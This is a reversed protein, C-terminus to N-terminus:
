ANSVKPTIAEYLVVYFAPDMGDSMPMKDTGVRRMMEALAGEPDDTELDYTAYYRWLPTAAVPPGVIKFRQASVFGPISIVDKLHKKSYWDNFEDEKGEVANTMVVLTYKKSM